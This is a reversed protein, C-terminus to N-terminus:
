TLSNLLYWANKIWCLITQMSAMFVLIIVVDDALFNIGTFGVSFLFACPALAVWQSVVFQVYMCLAGSIVGL